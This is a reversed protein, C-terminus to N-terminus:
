ALMEHRIPKQAYQSENSDSVDRNSEEEQVISIIEETMIESRKQKEM